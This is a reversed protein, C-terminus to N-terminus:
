MLYGNNVPVQQYHITTRANDIYPPSQHSMYYSSSGISSTESYGSLREEDVTNNPYHHCAGVTHTRATQYQVGALHSCNSVQPQWDPSSQANCYSQNGVQQNFGVLRDEDAGMSQTVLSHHESQTLTSENVQLPTTQLHHQYHTNTNTDLQQQNFEDYFISGSTTLQAPAVLLSPSSEIQHQQQLDVFSGAVFGSSKNPYTQNTSYALLHDGSYGGGNIENMMSSSSSSLSTYGFADSNQRSSSSSSVCTSAVSSVVSCSDDSPRRISGISNLSASDSRHEQHCNASIGPNGAYSPLLCSCQNADLQHQQQVFPNNCGIFSSRSSSSSGGGSSSSSAACSASNSSSREDKSSRKVLHSQSQLQQQLNHSSKPRQTLQEFGGQVRVKRIKKAQALKRAQSKLQRQQQQQVSLTAESIDARREDCPTRADLSLSKQQQEEQQSGLICSEDVQNDGLVLCISVIHQPKPMNRPNNVLTAHSQVWISGGDKRMLRYYKTVVQGKELLSRHARELSPVDSLHVLQYLSQGILHAQEFGLLRIM